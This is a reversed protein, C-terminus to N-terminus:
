PLSRRFTHFSGCFGTLRTSSCLVRPPDEYGADGAPARDKQQARTDRALPTIQSPWGTQGTDWRSHPTGHRRCFPRVFDHGGDEIHATYIDTLLSQLELTKDGPVEVFDLPCCRFLGDSNKSVLRALGRVLHQRFSRDTSRSELFRYRFRSPMRQGIEHLCPSGASRM